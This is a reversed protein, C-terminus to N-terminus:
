DLILPVVYPDLLSGTGTAKVTPSLNIVPRLYIWSADSVSEITSNGFGNVGFMVASNPSGNTVYAPSMTWYPYYSHLYFSENIVTSYGGALTFEDGTILGVPYTLAGNGITKSGASPHNYTIQSVTFQDNTLSVSPHENQCLLSTSPLSIWNRLVTGYNTAIAGYGGAYDIILSGSLTSKRDNCFINDVINNKNGSSLTSSYWSELVTKANSSTSTGKISETASAYTGSATGNSGGYMYGVYKADNYNTTNWAYTGISTDTGTTNIGTGNCPMVNGPCSGNYILRISGDGNIRIIKWQFHGFILNNNVVDYGGRFYYSMGYEDEMAWMGNEVVSNDKQTGAPLSDYYGQSVAAKGFTPNGKAEIATKGGNNALITDKFTPESEDVIAEVEIIFNIKDEIVSEDAEEILWIKINHTNTALPAVVDTTLIYIIDNEIVISPNEKDLNSVLVPIGNDFSIYLNSHELYNSTDGLPNNYLKVKYYAPLTGTNEVTINCGPLLMGDTPSLPMLDTTLTQNPGTCGGLNIVLSGTTVVQNSTNYFISQFIAYSLGAFSLAIGIIGVVLYITRKPIKKM